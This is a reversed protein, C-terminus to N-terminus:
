VITLPLEQDIESAHSLHELYWRKMKRAAQLTMEQETFLQCDVLNVADPHMANDFLHFIREKFELELQETLDADQGSQVVLAITLQHATGEELELNEGGDVDFFVDVVQLPSHDVLQSFQDKVANFRAGFSESFSARYYRASLWRQLLHKGKVDLSCTPDPEFSALVQKSITVRANQVLEIVCASGARELDLHLTRVNRLFSMGSIRRPVIKGVIVEVNPEVRMNANALDCDHSAVVVLTQEPHSPDGLGLAQAADPTLLHGQRWKTNRSWVPPPVTAM